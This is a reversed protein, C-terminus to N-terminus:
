GLNMNGLNLTKITKNAKILDSIIYISETGIINGSLDLKEIIKNVELGSCLSRLGEVGINQNSIDLEVIQKNNTLLQGLINADSTGCHNHQYQKSLCGCVITNQKPMVIKHIFSAKNLINKIPLLRAFNGGKPELTDLKMKLCSCINSDIPM